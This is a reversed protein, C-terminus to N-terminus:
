INCTGRDTGIELTTFGRVCKPSAEFTQRKDKCLESHLCKMNDILGQLVEESQLWEDMM